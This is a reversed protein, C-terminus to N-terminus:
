KLFTSPHEGTKASCESWYYCWNCLKTENPIFNNESESMEINKINQNLNSRFKTEHFATSDISVEKDLSVYYHSLKIEDLDPFRDKAAFLYIGIQLDKKLNGEKIPNKATKYDIIHLKNNHIDLRDIIAKYNYDDLKFNFEEEVSYVDENFYPGFKQYYNVLFRIGSTFYETKKRKIYKFRRINSHWAEDWNDKYVNTLHDLSFYNREKKIKQTYIWELSKHVIKGLFAEISEDKKFNKDIYIFKYKLSCANFLNIKSYSYIKNKM